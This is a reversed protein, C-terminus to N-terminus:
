PFLAWDFDSPVLLEDWEEFPIGDRFRYFSVWGTLGSALWYNLNERSFTQIHLTQQLNEPSEAIQHFDAGLMLIDDGVAGYFTKIDFSNKM